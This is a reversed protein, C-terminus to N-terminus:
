QGGDPSPVSLPPVTIGAAAARQEWEEPEDPWYPIPEADTHVIVAPLGRADCWVDIMFPMDGTFEQLVDLLATILKDARSAHM